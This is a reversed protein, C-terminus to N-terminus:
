AAGPKTKSLSQVTAAINEATVDYRKLLSAQSGYQDPFVDPLGIRKFRKPTTFDAEAILEAVASGLGGIVTHEEATVIVPVKQALAFFTETDFPKVTPM